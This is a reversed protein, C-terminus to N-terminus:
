FGTMKSTSMRCVPLLPNMYQILQENQAILEFM